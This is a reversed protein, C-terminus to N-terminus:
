LFQIRQGGSYVIPAPLVDGSLVPNKIKTMRDKRAGRQLSHPCASLWLTCGTRAPPARATKLINRTQFSNLHRLKKLSLWFINLFHQPEYKLGVQHKSQRKVWRKRTLTGNFWSKVNKHVWWQVRYKSFVFNSNIKFHLISNEQFNSIKSKINLPFNEWACPTRPQFL